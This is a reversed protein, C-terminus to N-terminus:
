RDVSHRQFGFKWFIGEVLCCPLGSPTKSLVRTRKMRAIHREMDVLPALWSIMKVRVM